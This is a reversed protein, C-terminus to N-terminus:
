SSGLDSGIRDGVLDDVISHAERDEVQDAVTSHVVLGAVYDVIRLEEPGEELDAVIPLEELEVVVAFSRDEELRVEVSSRGLLALAVM